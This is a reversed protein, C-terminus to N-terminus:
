LRTRTFLQVKVRAVGARDAVHMAAKWLRRSATLHAQYYAWGADHEAPVAYARDTAGDKGMLRLRGSQIPQEGKSTATGSM